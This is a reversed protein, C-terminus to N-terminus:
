LIFQAFGFDKPQLKLLELKTFDASPFLSTTDVKRTDQASTPQFSSSKITIIDDLHSDKAIPNNVISIEKLEFNIEQDTSNWFVKHKLSILEQTFNILTPTIQTKQNVLINM